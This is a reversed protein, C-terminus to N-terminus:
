VPLFRQFVENGLLRGRATLRLNDDEMELLGLETM